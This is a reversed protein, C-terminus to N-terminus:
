NRNTHEYWSLHVNILNSNTTSNVRLLYKTNQKLIIEEEHNATSNTRTQNTASGSKYCYILTGDTTGSDSIDKYIMTTATNISNRNSNFVTQLTTGTADSGEYILIETIGLGDIDFVFHSWETTDPTEIMYEQTLGSDVSVCNTYYYHSGDHITHHTYDITQLSHTITDVRLSKPIDGNILGKIVSFYSM